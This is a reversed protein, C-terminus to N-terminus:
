SMMGVLVQSAAYAALGAGAAIIATVAALTLVAKLYCM